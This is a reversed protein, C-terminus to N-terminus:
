ECGGTVSDGPGVFLVFSETSRVKVTPAVVSTVCKPTAAGLLAVAPVAKVKVTAAWSEPLLVTM